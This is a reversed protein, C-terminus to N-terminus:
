VRSVKYWYPLGLVDCIDFVGDFVGYYLSFYIILNWFM